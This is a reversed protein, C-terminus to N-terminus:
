HKRRRKAARNLRIRRQIAARRMGDKTNDNRDVTQQDISHDTGGSHRIVEYIPKWVRAISYQESIRLVLDYDEGYNRSGHEDNCGFWGVERLVKIDVARPAGAGNIRLLNNRGNDATWEDHTVVPIDERRSLQGTEEDKEWVEYSGIAMGAKPDDSFAKLILKAANPKLRDDSDLQLYYRGRAAEIGSNLCLGLNNVDTVILRVPPKKPDFKSGGEMYERVADCTPDSEGGNVVIIAEVRKETQAQISEIASPMFGPRSNVPVVVSVLCKDFAALESKTYKVRRQSFGPKLYAGIRKLHETVVREVELQTEKSALLYAFVDHGAGAAAVTYLSGAYRNGIRLVEGRESMKLRLDYLDGAKLSEDLGGIRRMAARDIMWVRGYDEFDRVRGIHHDLLRIEQARRGVKSTYDSFVMVTGKQRRMAMAMTEAGSRAIKVAAGRNDILLILTGEAAALAANIAEARSKFKGQVVSVRGSGDDGPVNPKKGRSDSAIIELDVRTQALLSEVLARADRTAVDDGLHIIASIKETCFM